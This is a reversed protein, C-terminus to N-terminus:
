GADGEGEGDLFPMEIEVFELYLYAFMCLGYRTGGCRRGGLLFACV